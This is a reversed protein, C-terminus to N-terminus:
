GVGNLANEEWGDEEDFYGEMATSNPVWGGQAAITSRDNKAKKAANALGRRPSHGTYREELGATEGCRTIVHGVAVPTIGGKMLTTGKSHIRRFAFEDPDLPAETLEEVATKWKRWSTVPCIRTDQLPKVKVKRPSVKSVRIHVLLGRGEPDETIDRNRLYAVEHERGAIAFHMTMLSRDRIGLLNDPLARSVQKMHVPLLAPAKGTGRVEGAKEMGKMLAKLYERALAGINPDLKLDHEKRASVVVGSIRRDITSPATFTGAKKGPQGWLWHVFAVLTGDEVGLTPLGKEATFREWAAWDQAYSDKTNKPRSDAVTKKAALGVADLLARTETDFDEPKLLDGSRPAPVMLGGATDM